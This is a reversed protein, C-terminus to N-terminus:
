RNKDAFNVSSQFVFATQSVILNISPGPPFENTLNLNLSYLVWPVERTAWHDLSQAKMAPPVPEIGSWPVLIGCAM